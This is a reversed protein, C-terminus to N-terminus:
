PIPTVKQSQVELQLPESNMFKRNIKVVQYPATVGTTVVSGKAPEQFNALVIIKDPDYFVKQIDVKYGGTPQGGQFVAVIVFDKLDVAGVIDQDSPAVLAKLQTLQPETTVLFQGSAMGMGVSGPGIQENTVVTEFPIEMENPISTAYRFANTDCATAVVIINLIIFYLRLSVKPM